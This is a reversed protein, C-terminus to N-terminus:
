VLGGACAVVWALEPHVIDSHAGSPPSGKKVVRAADINALDVDTFDYRAGVDQLALETVGPQHGDHGIGGWRYTVDALGAADERGLFSAAPYLVGVASDHVSYCATVPGAVRGSRGHLAGHRGADFPLTAAFAFHSFAGQLLTVSRVQPAAPDLGALAYAVVRAGFSHGILDVNLAPRQALLRGLLPGLGREGVVGARRKMQWYTLQRAAEQAGHWLRRFRDGFGAAGGGDGTNIGLEELQTAFRTFLEADPDPQAMFPQQESQEGDGDGATAAAITQVLERARRVSELDDPRKDILTLLEDVAARQDVPFGTRILARMDADPPPPPEFEVPRGFGAAGGGVGGLDAAPAFDPIPEDSWRSSPWFVGLLAVRRGPVGHAALMPPFQGFFAEYLRTAISPTNNWGHSFVLLDTPDHADLEAVLDREGDPDIDGNDDFRIEILPLGGIDKAM